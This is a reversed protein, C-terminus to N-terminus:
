TPRNRMMKDFDEKSVDDGLNVLEHIHKFEKKIKKLSARLQLYIEEGETRKYLEVMLQLKAIEGILESWNHVM